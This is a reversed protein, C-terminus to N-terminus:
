VRSDKNSDGTIVAKFTLTMLIGGSNNIFTEANHVNQFELLRVEICSAVNTITYMKKSTSLRLHPVCILLSPVLLM